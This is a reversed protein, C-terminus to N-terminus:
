MFIFFGGSIWIANNTYGVQNDINSLNKIGYKYRIDGFISFKVMEITVGCGIIPAFEAQKIRDSINDSVKRYDIADNMMVKRIITSKGSVNIGYNIGGFVYPSFTGQRLSYKITLPIDLSYIDMDVRSVTSNAGYDALLPSQPSYIYTPIINRAGYQAYNGELQISLQGTLKYGALIGYSLNDFTTEAFNKEDKIISEYNVIGYGLKAGVYIGGSSGSGGSDQAQLSSFSVVILLLLITKKM